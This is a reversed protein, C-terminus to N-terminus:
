LSILAKSRRKIETHAAATNCTVKIKNPTIKTPPNATPAHVGGTPFQKFTQEIIVPSLIPLINLPAAGKKSAFIM